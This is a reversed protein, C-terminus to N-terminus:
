FNLPDMHKFHGNMKIKERANEVEKMIPIMKIFHKILFGLRETESSMILLEYEEEIKLGLKHAFTYSTIDKENYEVQYNLLRLMEKLYFIFERFVNEPVKMDDELHRVNGGAYLKNQLPNEFSLIEFVQMAKTRIDMRGDEYIKHVELLKVETGYTMLKDLYVCVGFSLGEKQCDNVLEKYRPEFIHLNLDEGPFAVLKLPFFPMAANM